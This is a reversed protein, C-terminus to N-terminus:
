QMRPTQLQKSISIMRLTCLTLMQIYRRNPVKQQNEHQCFSPAHFLVCPCQDVDDVSRLVENVVSRMWYVSLTLQYTVFLTYTCEPYLLISVISRLLLSAHDEKRLKQHCVPASNKEGATNITARNSFYDIVELKIENM